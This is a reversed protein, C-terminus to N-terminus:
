RPYYIHFSTRSDPTLVTFSSLHKQPLLKSKLAVNYKYDSNLTVKIEMVGFSGM